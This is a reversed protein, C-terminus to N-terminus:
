EVTGINNQMERYNESITLSDLHEILLGDADHEFEVDYDGDEAVEIGGGLVHVGRANVIESDSPGWEPLNEV